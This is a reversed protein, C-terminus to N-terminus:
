HNGALEAGATLLSQPKGECLVEKSITRFFVGYAKTMDPYGLLLQPQSYSYLSPVAFVLRSSLWSGSCLSFFISLLM